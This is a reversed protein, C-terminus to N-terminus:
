QVTDLAPDPDSQNGIPDLAVGHQNEQDSRIRVRVRIKAPWAAGITRVTSRIYPPFLILCVVVRQRGTPVPFHSTLAFFHHALTLYSSDRFPIGIHEAPPLIVCRPVPGGNNPHCYPPFPFLPLNTLTHTRTCVTSTPKLRVLLVPISLPQLLGPCPRRTIPWVVWGAVDLRKHLACLISRGFLFLLRKSGHEYTKRM